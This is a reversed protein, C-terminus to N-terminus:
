LNVGDMAVNPGDMGLLATLTPLYDATSAPFDTSLGPSIHSPWVMIGPVRIGGEFVDGKRGSLGGTSGPAKEASKGAPGQAFSAFWDVSLPSFLSKHHWPARAVM